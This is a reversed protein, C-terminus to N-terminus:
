HFLSRRRRRSDIWYLVGFLVVVALGAVMFFGGLFRAAGQLGSSSGPEQGWAPSVGLGWVGLTGTNRVFSFGRCLGGRKGEATM